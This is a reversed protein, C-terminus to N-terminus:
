HSLNLDAVSSCSELSPSLPPPSKSRPLLPLSSSRRRSRNKQDLTRRHTAKNMETKKSLVKCSRRSTDSSGGSSCKHMGCGGSGSGSGGGGSDSGGRLPAGEDPAAPPSPSPLTPTNAGTGGPSDSGPPSGIPTGVPTNHCSSGYFFTFM